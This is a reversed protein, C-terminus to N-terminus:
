REQKRETELTNAYQKLQEVTSKLTMENHAQDAFKKNYAAEVDDM